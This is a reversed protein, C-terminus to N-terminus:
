MKIRSINYESVVPMQEQRPHMIVQQRREEQNDIKCTLSDQNSVVEKTINNNEKIVQIPLDVKM